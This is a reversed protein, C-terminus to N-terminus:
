PRLGASVAFIYQSAADALPVFDAKVGVTCVVPAVKLAVWCRRCRRPVPRCWDGGMALFASGAASLDETLGAALRGRAV